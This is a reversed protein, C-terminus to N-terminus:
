YPLGPYGADDGERGRKKAKKTADGTLGTASRELPIVPNLLGAYVLLRFAYNDIIEMEAQDVEQGMVYSELISRQRAGLDDYLRDQCRPYRGVNDVHLWSRRQPMPVRSKVSRRWLESGSSFHMPFSRVFSRIRDIEDTNPYFVVTSGTKFKDVFCVTHASAADLIKLIEMDSDTLVWSPVSADDHTNVVVTLESLERLIRRSCGYWRTPYPIDASGGKSDDKGLYKALYNQPSKRAVQADVRWVDYQGSWTGGGARAACDVGSRKSLGDIIACWLQKFNRLLVDRAEKSPCEIAAHWHLVGRKQWEWVWMWRLDSAKASMLRPIRTMLQHVVWSSNDSLAKAAEPTGGPLTGTLFSLKGSDSPSFVGGARSLQRRAYLSFATRNPSGGYGPKKIPCSPYLCAESLEVPLIALKKRNVLTRDRDALNRKDVPVPASVRSRIENNPYLTLKM